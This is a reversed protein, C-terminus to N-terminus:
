HESESETDTTQPLKVGHVIYHQARAHQHEVEAVIRPDDLSTFGRTRIKFQCQPFENPKARWASRSPLWTCHASVMGGRNTVVDTLFAKLQAHFPSSSHVEKSTPNGPALFPKPELGDGDVNAIDAWLENVLWEVNALSHELAVPWVTTLVCIKRGRVEVDM